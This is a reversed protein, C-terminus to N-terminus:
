SPLPQKKLRSTFFVDDDNASFANSISKLAKDKQAYVTNRAVQHQHTVQTVGGNALADLAIAQKKESSLRTISKQHVTQSM